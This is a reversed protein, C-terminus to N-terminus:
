KVEGRLYKRVERQKELSLPDFVEKMLTVSTGDISRVSGDMLKDGARVTYTRGTPAGLMAVWGGQGHLVGRVVVEDVLVGGVGEPRVGTRNGPGSESEGRNVLDVFPDRRSAPSYAFNPPPTPPAEAPSPPPVIPPAPAPTQASVTAAFMLAFLMVRM